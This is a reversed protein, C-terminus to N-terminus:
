FLGGSRKGFFNMLGQGLSPSAGGPATPFQNQPMSNNLQRLRLGDAISAFGQGINQPQQGTMKQMLAQKQQEPSGQSFFFGQNM